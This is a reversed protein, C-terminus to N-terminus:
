IHDDTRRPPLRQALDGASDHAVHALYTRAVLTARHWGALAGTKKSRWAARRVRLDVARDHRLDVRAADRRRQSIGVAKPTVLGALPASVAVIASFLKRHLALDRFADGRRCVFVM